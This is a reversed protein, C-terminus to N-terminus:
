SLNEKLGVVSETKKNKLGIDSLTNIPCVRCWTRPMFLLGLLLGIVTTTFMMSYIRYSLHVVWDSAQGLNLFQPLKWPLFIFILFRVKEVPAMLGNAVRITSMTIMLINIAFYVLFFWKAKGKALWDPGAKGSLSRGKTAVTFLRSRPCYQQCWTKKRDKFLLIFPVILCVFGFLAFIINVFGLSFFLLTIVFLYNSWKRQM